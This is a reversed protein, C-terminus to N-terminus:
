QATGHFYNILSLAHNWRRSDTFAKTLVDVVMRSTDEYTKDIAPRRVLESLSAVLVARERRLHRM